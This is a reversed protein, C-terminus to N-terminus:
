GDSRCQPKGCRENRGCCTRGTSALSCADDKGHPAAGKLLMAAGAGILRRVAGGCETCKELPRETMAQFREFRCGCAVCEYEYTPM